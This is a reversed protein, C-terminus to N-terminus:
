CGAHIHPRTPTRKLVFDVDLQRWATPCREEGEVHDLDVQSYPALRSLQRICLARLTFPHQRQRSLGKDATEEAV